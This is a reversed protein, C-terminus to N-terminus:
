MCLRRRCACPPICSYTMAKTSKLTPDYWPMFFEVLLCLSLACLRRKCACPTFCFHSMPEIDSMFVLLRPPSGILAFDEGPCTCTNLVATENQNANYYKTPVIAAQWLFEVIVSTFVFCTCRLSSSPLPPPPDPPPASGGRRPM